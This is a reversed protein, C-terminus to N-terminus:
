WGMYTNKAKQLNVDFRETAFTVMKDHYFGEARPDIPHRVQGTPMRNVYKAYDIEASVGLVLRVGRLENAAVPPPRSRKLFKILSARLAGTLMPAKENIWFESELITLDLSENMVKQIQKRVQLSNLKKKNRGLMFALDVKRFTRPVLVVM